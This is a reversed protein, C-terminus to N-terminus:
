NAGKGPELSMHEGCSRDRDMLPYQSIYILVWRWPMFFEWWHQWTRRLVMVKPPYRRCIVQVDRVGHACNGCVDSASKM